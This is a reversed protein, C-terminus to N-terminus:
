SEETGDEDEGDEGTSEGNDSGEESDVDSDDHKEVSNDGEESDEEEDSEDVEYFKDLDSWPAKSIGGNRMASGGAPSGSPSLGVPSAFKSSGTSRQAPLYIAQAPPPNDDHTDRLSPETGEELWDPLFNDGRMDKGTIVGLSGLMASDNDIMSHTLKQHRSRCSFRVQTSWSSLLM